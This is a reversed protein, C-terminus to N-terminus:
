WENYRTGQTSKATAASRIDIIGEPGKGSPPAGTMVRWDKKGTFPDGPVERLYGARVLDELSRPLSGKDVTYQDILKRMQSLNDRLVSERAQIVSKEYGARAGCSVLGFAGFAVILSALIIRMGGTEM